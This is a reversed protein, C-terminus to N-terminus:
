NNSEQQEKIFDDLVTRSIRYRYNIRAASLKGEEILDMVAEETINLYAAAEATTMVTPFNRRSGSRRPAPAPRPKPAEAQKAEKDPQSPTDDQRHLPHIPRDKKEDPPSQPQEERTPTYRTTTPNNSDDKRRPQQRTQQLINSLDDNEAVLYYAIGAAIAMLPLELFLVFDIAGQDGHTIATLMFLLVQRIILPLTLVFGATRLSPGEAAFEGIRISGVLLVGAGIVFLIISM